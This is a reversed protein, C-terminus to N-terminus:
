AHQESLALAIRRNSQVHVFMGGFAQQEKFMPPFHANLSVGDASRFGYYM